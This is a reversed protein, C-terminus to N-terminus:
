DTDLDLENQPQVVTHAKHIYTGAKSHCVGKSEQKKVVPKEAMKIIIINIIIIHITNKFSGRRDM